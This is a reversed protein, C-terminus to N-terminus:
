PAEPQMSVGPYNRTLGELRVLDLAILARLCDLGIQSKSGSVKQRVCLWM